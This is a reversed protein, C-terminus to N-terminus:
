RYQQLYQKYSYKKFVGIALRIETKKMNDLFLLFSKSATTRILGYFLRSLKSTKILSEPEGGCSTHGIIKLIGYTAKNTESKLYKIHTAWTLRSDFIIGM